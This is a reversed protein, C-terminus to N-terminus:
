RNSGVPLRAAMERLRDERRATLILNVGEAALVEAMARGIGSSAGTVLAWRGRWRKM